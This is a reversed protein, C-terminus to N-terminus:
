PCPHSKSPVCKPPPNPNSAAPRFWIEDTFVSSSCPILQLNAGDQDGTPILCYNSTGSVASVLAGSSSGPDWWNENTISDCTWQQIPTGAAASGRADLCLKSNYNIFHVKGSSATQIWVQATNKPDCPLLVMADGPTTSNNLPQLCKKNANVLNILSNQAQAPYFAIMMLAAVTMTTLLRNDIGTAARRVLNNILQKGFQWIRIVGSANEQTDTSMRQLNTQM